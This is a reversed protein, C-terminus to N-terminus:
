IFLIQLGLKEMSKFLKLIGKRSNDIILYHPQKQGAESMISVDLKLKTVDIGAVITFKKM